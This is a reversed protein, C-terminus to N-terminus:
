TAQGALESGFPIAVLAAPLTTVRAVFWTQDIYERLAFPRRFTARAVDVFMGFLGGAAALPSLFLNTV